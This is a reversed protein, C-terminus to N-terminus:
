RVRRGEPDVVIPATDGQEGRVWYQAGPSPRFLLRIRLRLPLRHAPRSPWVAASDVLVLGAFGATIGAMLVFAVAALAVATTASM